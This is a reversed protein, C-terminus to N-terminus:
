NLTNNSIIDIGIRCNLCKKKFCYNKFLQILGQSDFASKSSFFSSDFKRTIRNTEFSITELLLIARDMFQLDATFKSYAALIPVVSNLLIGEISKNGMAKSLNKRSKGFDYHSHWYDSTTVHFINKLTHINETEIIYSFLQPYHHLLSAFQSLRVTPFNPPRLKSLKWQSVAMPKMLQYKKSLYDYEKKLDAHYSDNPTQLFGAQGFLLAETAKLNHLNKKLKKYPLLETLRAFADKNTSFGFNTAITKYSIEEWDNKNKNLEKM